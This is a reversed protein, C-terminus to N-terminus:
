EMPDPIHIVPTPSHQELREKASGNPLTSHSETAKDSKVDDMTSDGDLDSDPDAHGETPHKESELDQEYEFLQAKLNTTPDSSDLSHGLGFGRTFFSGAGRLGTDHDDEDEDDDETDNDDDQQSFMLQGNDATIQGGPRFSIGGVNIGYRRLENEISTSQDMERNNVREMRARFSLMRSQAYLQPVRDPTKYGYGTQVRETVWKYWEEKTRGHTIAVIMVTMNDCGIGAGSTTDPALCHDCMMEAIETLDKGQSVQYRIFDVVQQSSLCDWIGDCALVLFEDDESIEHCTIDPNATIIQDEPHLAYNKKFEFDGLARSLALNGNVRGYEIYGGANTIRAVETESTPKHDYSLPKVEGKIGIVSRSDGANAVYIKNDHTVLAAVATCGSPDRTHGPNALLDEDTGLFAQQLAKGYDGAQYSEETVLRQHVHKGAFKAVTSGGHGDYVAFFSNSKDPQQDLDLVAAHADEMTIRWGQMDSVSFFFRADEGTETNKKTAPASLTQGM